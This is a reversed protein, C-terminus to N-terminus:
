DGQTGDQEKRKKKFVVRSVAQKPATPAKITSLDLINQQMSRKYLTEAWYFVDKAKPCLIRVEEIGTNLVNFRCAAFLHISNPILKYPDQRVYRLAQESKPIIVNGDSNTRKPWIVLQDELSILFRGGKRIINVGPVHKADEEIGMMWINRIIRPGVGGYHEQRLKASYNERYLHPSKLIAELLVAERSKVLSMIRSQDEPSLSKV